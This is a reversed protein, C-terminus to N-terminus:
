KAAKSDDTFTVEMGRRQARRLTTALSAPKNYGLIPAALLVSGKHRPWTHLFEAVIDAAKMRM